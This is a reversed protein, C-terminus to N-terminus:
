KVINAVLLVRKKGLEQPMGRHLGSQNSIILTGRPATFVHTKHNSGLHSGEIYSYPGCSLKSVDTLYVFAKFQKNKSSDRHYDRTKTISNNIYININRIKLKSNIIKLVKNIFENSRFSELDFLRDANFIDILGTDYELRHRVQIVPKHYEVMQRAGKLRKKSMSNVFYKDCEYTEKTKVKKMLVSVKKELSKCEEEQWFNPIVVFGNTGLKAAAREAKMNAESTIISTKNHM